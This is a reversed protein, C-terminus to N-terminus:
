NLLEGTATHCQNEGVVDLTGLVCSQCLASPLGTGANGCPISFSGCFPVRGSALSCAPPLVRDCRYCVEPPNPVLVFYRVRSVNSFSVIATDRCGVVVTIESIDTDDANGRDAFFQNAAEVVLGPSRRRLPYYSEECGSM